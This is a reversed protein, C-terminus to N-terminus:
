RRILMRSEGGNHIHNMENLADLMAVSRIVSLRSAGDPNLQECTTMANELSVPCKQFKYYFGDSGLKGKDVTELFPSKNIKILQLLHSKYFKLYSYM